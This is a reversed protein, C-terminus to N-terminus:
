PSYICLFECLHVNVLHFWISFAMIKDWTWKHNALSHTQENYILGNGIYWLRYLCQIYAKKEYQTIDYVLLFFDSLYSQKKKKRTCNTTLIIIIKRGKKNTINLSFFVLNSRCCFPWSIVNVYKQNLNNKSYLIETTTKTWYLKFNM